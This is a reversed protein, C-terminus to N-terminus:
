PVAVAYLGDASDVNSLVYVVRTRDPSAIFQWPAVRRAAIRACEPSALDVARLDVNSSLSSGYPSPDGYVIRAGQLPVYAWEYWGTPEMSLRALEAVAHPDTVPTFDFSLAGDLASPAWVKEFLAFTSAGTGVFSMTAIAADPTDSLPFVEGAHAASTTTLL